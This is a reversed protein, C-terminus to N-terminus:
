EQTLEDWISGQKARSYFVRRRPARAVKKTELGWDLTLKIRGDAERSVTFWGVNVHEGSSGRFKMSVVPSTPGRGEAIDMEGRDLSWRFGALPGPRREDRDWRDGNAVDETLCFELVEADLPDVIHKNAFALDSADEGM